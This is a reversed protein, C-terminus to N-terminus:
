ALSGSKLTQSLLGCVVLGIKNGEYAVPRHKCSKGFVRRQLLMGSMSVAWMKCHWVLGYCLQVYKMYASSPIHIGFRRSMSLISIYRIYPYEHAFDEM